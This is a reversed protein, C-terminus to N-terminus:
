ECVPHEYAWRQLFAARRLLARSGKYVTFTYWWCGAAECINDAEMLFPFYSSYPM